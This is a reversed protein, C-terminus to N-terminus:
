QAKRKRRNSPMSPKIACHITAQTPAQSPDGTSPWQDGITAPMQTMGANIPAKPPASAPVILAFTIAPSAACRSRVEFHADLAHQSALDDLWRPRIRAWRFGARNARWDTAKGPTEAATLCEDLCDRRLKVDISAGVRDPIADDEEFFNRPTRGKEQAGEQWTGNSRLAVFSAEASRDLANVVAASAQDFSDSANVRRAKELEFDHRLRQADLIAELRNSAGILDFAAAACAVDEEPGVIFGPQVGAGQPARDLSEEHALEM